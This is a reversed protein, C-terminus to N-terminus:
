RWITSSSNAHMSNGLEEFSPTDNTVSPYAFRKLDTQIRDPDGWDSWHVGNLRLVSFAHPNRELIACSFNVSQLRAYVEEVVDSEGSSDLRVRVPKFADFVNPVLTQFLNLLVVAPSVLVLTNWICGKLFLAQALPICPKEWFRKVRFIENGRETGTKERTEIWGYKSEPLDPEAGLLISVGPHMKVYSFAAKVYEIFRDEELVFHDSPFIAVVADPDRHHVHLLPYLIGPGTDRNCPQVIISEWEQDSLEDQAYPLHQRNVVTLLREPPIVTEARDITHRLMSRTGIIACYQKPRDCGFHWLIFEQLRRGKGGALVIGWLHDSNTLM